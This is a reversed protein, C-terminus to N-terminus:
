MVFIVFALAGVVLACVALRPLTHRYFYKIRAKQRSKRWRKNKAKAAKKYNEYGGCREIAEALLNPDNSMKMWIDYPFTVIYDPHWTHRKDQYIKVWEDYTLTSKDTRYKEWIYDDAYNTNQNVTITNM